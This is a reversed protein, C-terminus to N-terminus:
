RLHVSFWILLSIKNKIEQTHRYNRRAQKQENTLKSGLRLIRLRQKQKESKAKGKNAKVIKEIHEKSSKIGLRSYYVNKSINYGTEYSKTWDLWCQEKDLLVNKDCIELIKFEFNEEGYKNWARQLHKNEHINKRLQFRHLDWRKRFKIASGIYIKDNVM